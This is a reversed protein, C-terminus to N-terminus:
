FSHSHWLAYESWLSLFPVSHLVCYCHSLLAPWRRAGKADGGASPVVAAGPDGGAALWLWKGSVRAAAGDGQTSDM